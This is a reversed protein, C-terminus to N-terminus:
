LYKPDVFKTFQSRIFPDVLSLKNNIEPRSLLEHYSYFKALNIIYTKGFNMGGVAKKSYSTANKVSFSVLLFGYGTVGRAQSSAIFYGIPKQPDNLDLHETRTANVALTVLGGRSLIDSGASTFESLGKGKPLHKFNKKTLTSSNVVPCFNGGYSKAMLDMFINYQHFSLPNIVKRQRLLPNNFIVSRNVEMADRLSFHTYIVLLGKGKLANNEAKQLAHTEDIYIRPFFLRLFFESVVRFWFVRQSVLAIKENSKM